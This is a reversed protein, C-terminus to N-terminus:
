WSFKAGPGTASFLFKKGSAIKKLFCAGRSLQFATKLMKSFGKQWIIPSFKPKLGLIVHNEKLHFTKQSCIKGPPDSFNKLIRSFVNVWLGFFTKSYLKKWLLQKEEFHEELVFHAIKVVRNVKKGLRWPSNSM